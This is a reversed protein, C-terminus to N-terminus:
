TKADRGVGISVTASHQESSTKITRVDTSFTSASRPWSWTYSEDTVMLYRHRGSLRLSAEMESHGMGYTRADVEATM